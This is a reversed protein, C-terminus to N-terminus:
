EQVIDWCNGRCGESYSRVIIGEQQLKRRHYRVTSMSIQLINALQKNDAWPRGKLFRLMRERTTRPDPASSRVYTSVFEQPTARKSKYHENLLKQVEDITIEGEINKQALEKLYDSVQLGDVQQLGIATRWIQARERKDPEVQRIYEEFDPTYTPLEKM